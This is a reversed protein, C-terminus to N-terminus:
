PSAASAACASSARWLTSRSSDRGPQSCSGLGEDHKYWLARELPVRVPSRGTRTYDALIDALSGTGWWGPSPGEHARRLDGQDARAPEREPGGHDVVDDVGRGQRPAPQHKVVDVLRPQQARMPECCLEVSCVARRDRELVRGVRANRELTGVEADRAGLVPPEAVPTLVVLDRKAVPRGLDVALVTAGSRHEVGQAADLVGEADAGVDLLVAGVGEEHVERVGHAPDGQRDIPARAQSVHPHAVLHRDAITRM